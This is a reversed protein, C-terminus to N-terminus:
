GCDCAQFNSCTLSNNSVTHLLINKLITPGFQAEMLPQQGLVSWFVSISRSFGQRHGRGDSVKLSYDLRGIKINLEPTITIDSAVVQGNSYIDIIKKILIPGSFLIAGWTLSVFCITYLVIKLLFM